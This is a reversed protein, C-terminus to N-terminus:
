WRRGDHDLSQADGHGTGHRTRPFPSYPFQMRFRYGQEVAESLHISNMPDPHKQRRQTLALKKNEEAHETEKKSTCIQTKSSGGPHLLSLDVM